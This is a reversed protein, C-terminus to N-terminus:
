FRTHSSRSARIDDGPLGGADPEPPLAAPPKAFPTAPATGRGIRELDALAAVLPRVGPALEIHRAEDFLDRYGATGNPEFNLDVDVHRTM